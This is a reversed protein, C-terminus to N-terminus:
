SERANKGVQSCTLLCRHSQQRLCSGRDQQCSLPALMRLNVSVGCSVDEACRAEGAPRSLIRAGARGLPPTSSDDSADSDSADGGAVIYITGLDMGPAPGSRRAGPRSTHMKDLTPRQAWDRGLGMSAAPSDGANNDETLGSRHGWTRGLDMSPTPSTKPSRSPKGRQRTARPEALTPLQAQAHGMRRGPKPSDASSRRSARADQFGQMLQGMARGGPRAARAPNRRVPEGPPDESPAPPAATPRDRTSRPQYDPSPSRPQAEPPPLPKSPTPRATRRSIFNDQARPRRTVVSTCLCIAIHSRKCGYKHTPM